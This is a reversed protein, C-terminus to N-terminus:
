DSESYVVDTETTAGQLSLGDDELKKFRIPNRDNVFWTIKRSTGLIECGM